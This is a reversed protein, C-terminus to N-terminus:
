ATAHFVYAPIPKVKVDRVIFNTINFNSAVLTLESAMLIREECKVCCCSSKSAIVNIPKYV